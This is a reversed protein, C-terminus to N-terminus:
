PKVEKSALAQFYPFPKVGCLDALKKLDDYEKAEKLSRKITESDGVEGLVKWAPLWLGNLEDPFRLSVKKIVRKADVTTM